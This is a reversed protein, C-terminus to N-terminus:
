WLTSKEVSLASRYSTASKSNMSKTLVRFEQPLILKSATSRNSKSQLKKGPIEATAKGFGTMSYLM